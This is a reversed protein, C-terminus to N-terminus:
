SVPTGWRNEGKNGDGAISVRTRKARICTLIVEIGKFRVHYIRFGPASFVVSISIRVLTITRQGYFDM